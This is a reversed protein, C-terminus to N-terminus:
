AFKETKLAGFVEIGQPCTDALNPGFKRYLGGARGIRVIRFILVVLFRSLYFNKMVVFLPEASLKSWFPDSEKKAWRIGLGSM